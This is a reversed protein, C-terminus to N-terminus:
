ALEWVGRPSDGASALVGDKRLLDAAWRVEYQWSYFLDGAARIEDGHMEWVIKCVDLVTGRGGNEGLAEEVWRAM